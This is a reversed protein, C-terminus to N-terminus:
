SIELIAPSNIIFFPKRTEPDVTIEPDTKAVENVPDNEPDNEPIPAEFKIEVPEIVADTLVVGLKKKIWDPELSNNLILVSPVMCNSALAVVGVAIM